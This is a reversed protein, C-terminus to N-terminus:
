RKLLLFIRQRQLAVANTIKWAIFPAHRVDQKNSRVDRFRRAENGRQVRDGEDRRGGADDNEEDGREELVRDVADAVEEVVALRVPTGLSGAVPRAGAQGLCKEERGSWFRLGGSAAM